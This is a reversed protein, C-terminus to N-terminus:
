FDITETEEAINASDLECLQVERSGDSSFGKDTLSYVTVTAEDGNVMAEKISDELFKKSVYPVKVWKNKGKLKLKCYDRRM